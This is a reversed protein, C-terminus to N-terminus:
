RGSRPASRQRHAAAVALAVDRRGPLDRGRLPRRPEPPLPPRRRAACRLAAPRRPDDAASRLSPRARRRLRAARGDPCGTGASRAARAPLLWRDSGVARRRAGVRHPSAIGGAGPAAALAAPSVGLAAALRGAAVDVSVDPDVGTVPPAWEAVQESPATSFASRQAGTNNTPTGPAVFALDGTAAHAALLEELSAAADDPTLTWDVGAVVLRTLGHALTHGTTLDAERVTLAMGADRAADLDLAWRLADQVKPLKSDDPPEPPAEEPAPTPGAALRDPVPRESWVRFVEEGAQYGVAVWHEPLATAEVARTWSTARRPTDPFEPSGDPAADTNTPHLTEVLYRARGPRFRGAVTQWAQDAVDGDDLAAWRQQWYWEAAQREDDTFEPEHGDLHVQDPYIRIDLSTQDPAFRTEIRVPLMAIPVNADLTRVSDGIDRGVLLGTALDSIGGILESRRDHLAARRTELEVVAREADALAATDTVTRRLQDLTSSSAALEVRLATQEATVSALEQRNRTLEGLDLDVPDPM